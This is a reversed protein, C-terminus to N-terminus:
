VDQCGSYLFFGGFLKYSIRRYVSLKSSCCVLTGFCLWSPITTSYCWESLFCLFCGRHSLLAARYEASIDSNSLYLSSSCFLKLVVCSLSDYLLWFTFDLCSFTFIQVHIHWKFKLKLSSYINLVFAKPHFTAVDM